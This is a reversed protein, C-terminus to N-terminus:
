MVNTLLFPISKGEDCEAGLIVWNLLARKQISFITNSLDDNNNSGM